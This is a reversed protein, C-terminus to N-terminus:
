YDSSGNDEFHFCLVNMYTFCVILRQQILKYLKYCKKDRKHYLNTYPKPSIKHMRTWLIKIEHFYHKHFCVCNKLLAYSIIVYFTYHDEYSFVTKTTLFFTHPNSSNTYIMLIINIYNICIYLLNGCCMSNMKNCGSKSLARLQGRCSHFLVSLRTLSLLWCCFGVYDCDLFLLLIIWFLLLM